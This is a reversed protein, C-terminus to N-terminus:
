MYIFTSIFYSTRSNNKFRTLTVRYIPGIDSFLIDQSIVHKQEETLSTYLLEVSTIALWFGNKITLDIKRKTNITEREISPTTNLNM